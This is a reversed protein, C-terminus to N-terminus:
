CQSDVVDKPRRVDYKKIELKHFTLSSGGIQAEILGESEGEQPVSDVLTTTDREGEEMVSVGSYEELNRQQEDVVKEELVVMEGKRMELPKQGKVFHYMLGIAAVINFWSLSIILGSYTWYPLTWRYSFQLGFDYLIGHAIQDIQTLVVLILLSALSTIVLAPVLTSSRIKVRM